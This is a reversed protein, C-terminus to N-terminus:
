LCPYKKKLESLKHKEAAVIHAQRVREKEAQRLDYEERTLVGCDLLDYDDLEDEAVEGNHIVSYTDDTFFIVMDEGMETAQAITKGIMDTVLTKM